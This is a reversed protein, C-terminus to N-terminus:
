ATGRDQKIKKQKGGMLKKVRETCKSIGKLVSQVAERKEGQENIERIM